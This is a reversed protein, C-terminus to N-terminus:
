QDCADLALKAFYQCDTDDEETAKRALAPKVTNNRIPEELKAVIHLLGRAAVMRVNAVPDDLGQVLHRIIEEMLPTTMSNPPSTGLSAYSRLITIRLLYSVSEELIRAYHPLLERQIWPGGAVSLLKPMSSVCSTRVEAVQDKLLKMWPDLLHDEFFSVGRAECLHPLLQGVAARVRWNPVKAMNVITGVVTDMRALLHSVRSLKSLVFLQVEPFEDQLFGELLPRFDALIIRDPLVTTSSDCCDMVSQAMKSRVEMVPDDALAPLLSSLHHSFPDPGGGLRTMKALNEVAAARVEAEADQLLIAFSRFVDNWQSAGNPGLHYGLSQAVGAFTRALNHRVRWSLDVCGSRVIPLILDAILSTDFGLACGVSGSASVGLLRVSDQEDTSLSQYIPIMEDTMIKQLEPTVASQIAKVDPLDKSWVQYDPAYGGGHGVFSQPTSDAPPPLQAVAEVMRTLNRGASRRVMPTDDEALEKYMNRLDRRSDENTILTYVGPLIGAASVKATFWDAGTLRKAMAMIVGPANKPCDPSLRYLIHNISEVAKDRVVTEEVAALKELIPLVVLGLHGPILSPVMRGLQEALILLMEDEDREGRSEEGGGTNNNNHVIRDRLYPILKSLTLDRGIAHAVVFLRRMADVRTEINDTELQILFLDMPSMTAVTEPAIKLSRALTMSPTPTSNPRLTTTLSSITPHSSLHGNKRAESAM